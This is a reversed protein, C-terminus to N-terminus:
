GTVYEIGGESCVALCDKVIPRLEADLPISVPPGRRDVEQVRVRVGGAGVIAVLLHVAVWIGVAGATGVGVDVFVTRFIGSYADPGLLIHCIICVLVTSSSGLPNGGGSVCGLRVCRGSGRYPAQM